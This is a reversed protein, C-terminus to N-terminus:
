QKPADKSFAAALGALAVGAAIIAEAQAPSLAVGLAAGFSILGLWTSREKGRAIIFLLINKLM